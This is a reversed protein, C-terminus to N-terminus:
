KVAKQGGIIAGWINYLGTERAPANKIVTVPMGNQNTQNNKFRIDKSVGQNVVKSVGNQVASSPQNNSASRNGNNVSQTQTQGNALASGPRPCPKFSTLKLVGRGCRSARQKGDTLAM